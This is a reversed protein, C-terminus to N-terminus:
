AKNAKIALRKLYRIDFRAPHIAHCLSQPLSFPLGIIISALYDALIPASQFGRAGLGGLVYLNDHYLPAPYDIYPNGKAIDGYAQHYFDADHVQGVLPLSDPCHVRWGQWHHHPEDFGEQPNIDYKNHWIGQQNIIDPMIIGDGYSAHHQQHNPHYSSFRTQERM